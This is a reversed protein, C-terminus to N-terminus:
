STYIFDSVDKYSSKQDCLGLYDGGAIIDVLCSDGQIKRYV